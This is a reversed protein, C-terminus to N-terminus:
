IALREAIWHEVSVAGRALDKAGFWVGETLKNDAPLASLYTLNFEREIQRKAREDSYDEAGVPKGSIAVLRARVMPFSRLRKVGNRELFEALPQRQEPQINVLFRDPADPPLRGRWADLLDGRILTLLLIATLGVAIAVIQVANVRPRRLLNALGYRWAISGPRGLRVM